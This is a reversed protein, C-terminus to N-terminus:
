HGHTNRITTTPTSSQSLTKINLTMEQPKSNSKHSVHINASPNLNSVNQILASKSLAVLQIADQVGGQTHFLSQIFRPIRWVLFLELLASIIVMFYVEYNSASAPILTQLIQANYCACLVMLPQYFSLGACKKLYLWLIPRLSTFFGLPLVLIGLALWLYIEISVILSLALILALLAGECLLVGITLLTTANLSLAGMTHMILELAHFAQNILFAFNLHTNEVGFAFNAHQLSSIIIEMLANSPIFLTSKLYEYFNHPHKWAYNFLTFFGAFGALSFLTKTAFMDGLRVRQYAWVMLALSLIGNYILPLHLNELIQDGLSSLLQQTPEIFFSLLHQYPEM